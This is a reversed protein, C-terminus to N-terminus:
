QSIYTLVLDLFQKLKVLLLQQDDKQKEIASANRILKQNLLYELSPAHFEGHSYQSFILSLFNGNQESVMSSINRLDEEHFKLDQYYRYQPISQLKTFNITSDKMEKGQQYLISLLKRNTILINQEQSMLDNEESITSM